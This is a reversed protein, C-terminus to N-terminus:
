GASGMLRLELRLWSLWGLGSHLRGLSLGLFLRVEPGTEALEVSGAAVREVSGAPLQARSLELRHLSTRLGECHEISEFWSRAAWVHALAPHPQSAM